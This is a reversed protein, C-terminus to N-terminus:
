ELEATARDVCRRMVRLGRRNTVDMYCVHDRMQAALVSRTRRAGPLLAEQFRFRSSAQPHLGDDRADGDGGAEGGTRLDAGAAGAEADEDDAEAEQMCGHFLPFMGHAAQLCVLVFRM